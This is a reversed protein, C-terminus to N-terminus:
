LTVVQLEEILLTTTSQRTVTVVGSEGGGAWQVRWTTVGTVTYRGGPKGRSPNDYRHFCTPSPEGGYSESYPTGPNACHVTNGDGMDWAIETAQGTATVSLGPVAATASIPGWTSPSVATWLWVPLGPLGAGTAGLSTGIQPGRIPLQNIARAALVEPSVGGAGPGPPPNQLWEFGVGGVGLPTTKDAPYCLTEYVDGDGPTHGQWLASGAGPPPDMLYYYCGTLESFWGVEGNSAHSCPVEQGAWRCVRPGGGGGSSGDDGGSEGGGPSGPNTVEVQCNGQPPCIVDASAPAALVALTGAMFLVGLLVRAAARTLM